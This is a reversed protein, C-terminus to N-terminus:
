WEKRLEVLAREEVGAMGDQDLFAEVDYESDTAFATIIDAKGKGSSM